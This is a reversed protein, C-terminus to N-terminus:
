LIASRYSRFFGLEAVDIAIAQSTLKSDVWLWGRGKNDGCVLWMLELDLHLGAFYRAQTRSQTWLAIGRCSPGTLGTTKCFEESIQKPVGKRYRLNYKVRCQIQARVYKKEPQQKSILRKSSRTQSRWVFETLQGDRWPQILKRKRQPIFKAIDWNEAIRCAIQISMINWM